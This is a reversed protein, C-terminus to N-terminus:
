KLFLNFIIQACEARTAQGMPVFRNNGMGSVAGSMYLKNVADKAYDAIENSDTFDAAERIKPVEGKASLCLVAMDQRTLARGTGFMEEGIGHVMGYKSASAVYSYYWAAKDVDVFDCVADKDYKKAARVLMSVFEERNIYENPRFNGNDDGSVIGAEALSIVAKKAWDATNMDKFKADDSVIAETDTPVGSIITSQTSSSSNKNGGSSNGGGAGGAGGGGGGGSNGPNVATNVANLLADVSGAPTKALIEAIKINTQAKSAINKYLTYRSDNAIGMSGEYQLFLEDIRDAVSTNFKYLINAMSYADQTFTSGKLYSALWDTLNEDRIDGYKVGEFEPNLIDLLQQAKEKDATILGSIVSAKNYEKKFEEQTVASIDTIAGFMIEATKENYYDTECGIAKLVILNDPNELIQKLAEYSDSTLARVIDFFDTRSELSAYCFSGKKVASGSEKVYIDYEGDSLVGNKEEPMVFSFEIKGDSDSYANKLAYIQSNDEISEGKKVVFCIGLTDPSISDSYIVNRSNTVIEVSHAEAFNGALMGTCLALIIAKNKM